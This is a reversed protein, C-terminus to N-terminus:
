PSVRGVGAAAAVEARWARMADFWSKTALLIGVVLIDALGLMLSFPTAGGGLLDLFGLVAAYNVALLWARGRRILLGLAISGADLAVAGVLFPEAGAPLGSWSAAVQILGAVGGVILIATALEVVAPRPPKAPEAVQTTM